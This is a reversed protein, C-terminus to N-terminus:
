ACAASKGEMGDLCCRRHACVQTSSRYAKWPISIVQAFPSQHTPPNYTRAYLMTAIAIESLSIYFYLWERAHLRHKEVSLSRILAAVVGGLHRVVKVLMACCRVRTVSPVVPHNGVGNSTVRYLADHSRM